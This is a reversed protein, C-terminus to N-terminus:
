KTKNAWVLKKLYEKKWKRRLNIKLIIQFCGLCSSIMKWKILSFKCSCLISQSFTINFNALSIYLNAAPSFPCVIFLCSYPRGLAQMWLAFPVANWSVWNIFFIVLILISPLNTYFVFFGWLPICKNLCVWSILVLNVIFGIEWINLILTLEM